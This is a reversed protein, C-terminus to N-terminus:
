GEGLGVGDRERKSQGIFIMPELNFIGEDKRKEHTGREDWEQPHGQRQMGQSPTAKHNTGDELKPQWDNAHQDCKDHIVHAHLSFYMDNWKQM